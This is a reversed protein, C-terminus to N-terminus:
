ALLGEKTTGALEALASAEDDTFPQVGTGDTGDSGAYGTAKAVPFRVELSELDAKTGEADKDWANTWAERRDASIKGQSFAAAIATDREEERQKARAEIGAQAGDKLEALLTESVLVKGEPIKPETEAPAPEPKAAILAAAAETQKDFEALLAAEDIEADDAIGLRTRLEKILDAMAVTEKPDSSVPPKAPDTSAKAPMAPSPANARGAHAFISLDFSTKPALDSPKATLVRDALGAEVAEDAKFWTEPQMAERWDASTGGARAAYADAYSSSMKELMEAALILDAAQGIALASADHVMMQSSPAMSVTDGAMAIMSAASAALGDVTVNVKAPHQQLQNKIAIGDFASGGPSHIHLDISDVDGVEALAKGFDDASIGYPAGYSDIPGYIRMTASKGSTAAMDIIPALETPEQDGWYRYRPAVDSM